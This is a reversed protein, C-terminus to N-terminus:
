STYSNGNADTYPNGNADTYVNFAVPVIQTVEGSIIISGQVPRHMLNLSDLVKIDFDCCGIPFASTVTNAIKATITLPVPDIVLGNNASTLTCIFSDDPARIQMAATSGLLSAPEDVNFTYSWDTGQELVVTYFATSM